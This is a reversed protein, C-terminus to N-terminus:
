MNLTQHPWIILPKNSLRDTFKKLDTFIQGFNCALVDNDRASEKDKLLTNALRAFKMLCGRQQM